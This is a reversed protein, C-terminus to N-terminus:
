LIGAPLLPHDPLEQVNVLSLTEGGMAMIQQGAHFTQSSVQVPADYTALTGDTGQELEVGQMGGLELVGKFRDLAADDVKPTVRVTFRYRKGAELEFVEPSSAKAGAVLMVAGLLLLLGIPWPM